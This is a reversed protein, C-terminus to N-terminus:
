IEIVIAFVRIRNSNYNVLTRLYSTSTLSLYSRWSHDANHIILSQSATSQVASLLLVLTIEPVLSFTSNTM